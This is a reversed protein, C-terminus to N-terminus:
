DYLLLLKVLIFLKFYYVINIKSHIIIHEVYFRVYAKKLASILNESFEVRIIINQERISRVINHGAVM